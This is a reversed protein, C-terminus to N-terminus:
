QEPGTAPGTAPLPVFVRFRPGHAGDGFDGSYSTSHAVDQLAQQHDSSELREGDKMENSVVTVHGSPRADSKGYVIITGPPLQELESVLLGEVETMDSRAALSNGYTYADGRQPDMGVADFSNGVSKACKGLTATTKAESDAAIALATGRPSALETAVALAAGPPTKKATATKKTTKKTKKTTKKATKKATKKTTPLAAITVDVLHRLMTRESWWAEDIVLAPKAGPYPAGEVIEDVHTTLLARGECTDKIFLRDDCLLGFMVDGKYLGYEGFMKKASVDGGFCSVLHEVLSASSSMGHQRCRPTGAAVSVDAASSAFTAHSSGPSSDDVHAGRQCVTDAQVRLAESVLARSRRVSEPMDAWAIPEGATRAFPDVAVVVSASDGLRAM